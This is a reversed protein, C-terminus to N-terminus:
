TELFAQEELDGIDVAGAIKKMNMPPFAGFVTKHWKGAGRVLKQPL